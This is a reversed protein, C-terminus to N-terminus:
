SATLPRNVNEGIKLGFRFLLLFFSLYLFFLSFLSLFFSLFYLFSFTCKVNEKCFFTFKEERKKKKWALFHNGSPHECSLFYFPSRARENDRKREEREREREGKRERKEREGGRDNDRKKRQYFGHMM